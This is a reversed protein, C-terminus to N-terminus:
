TFKIINKDSNGRAVWTVNWRSFHFSFPSYSLFVAWLFISFLVPYMQCDNLIAVEMCQWGRYICLVFPLLQLAYTTVRNCCLYWKRMSFQFLGAMLYPQIVFQFVDSPVAYYNLILYNQYSCYGAAACLSIKEGM